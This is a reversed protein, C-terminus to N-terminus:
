DVLFTELRRLQETPYQCGELNALRVVLHYVTTRTRMIVVDSRRRFSTATARVSDWKRICDTYVGVVQCVGMSMCLSTVRVISVSSQSESVVSSATEIGSTRM